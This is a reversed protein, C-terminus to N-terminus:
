EFIVYVNNKTEIRTEMSFSIPTLYALSILNQISQFKISTFCSEDNIPIDTIDFTEAIVESAFERYAFYGTSKASVIVYHM